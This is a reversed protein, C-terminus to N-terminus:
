KLSKEVRLGVSLVGNLTDQRMFQEFRVQYTGPSSFTYDRIIPIQHDFIDGLASKGLPQGTKRDFLDATLLEKRLETGTSDTITSGIFIRSYPYISSNRINCYLNYQLTTDEIEFEFSPEDEVFWFSDDLDHNQEYVRKNDFSSWLITSAALLFLFSM